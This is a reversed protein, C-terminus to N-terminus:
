YLYQYTDIYKYIHIHIHRHIHTYIHIEMMEKKDELPMKLQMKRGKSVQIKYVKKKDNITIRFFTKLQIM